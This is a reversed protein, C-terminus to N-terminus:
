KRNLFPVPRLEVEKVSQLYDLVPKADAQGVQAHFHLNFGHPGRADILAPELTLMSKVIELQGMMAACFLDMRAGKSLLFKVIDKRGMHSAGGLATEWDGDGWDLTANLLNPQREYLKKVMDLDSHAYIVFDQAMLRNIQPKKWSPKFGPAPYDREFEAEVPQKEAVEKKQDDSKPKDDQGFVRTGTAWAMGAVSGAVSGAFVRRSLRQNMLLEQKIQKHTRRVFSITDYVIWEIYRIV